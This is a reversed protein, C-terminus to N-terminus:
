LVVGARLGIGLSLVDVMLGLDLADYQAGIGIQILADHEWHTPVYFDGIVGDAVVYGAHRMGLWGAAAEFFAESWYRRYGVLAEVHTFDRGEDSLAKEGVGVGARLTLADNGSRYGYM